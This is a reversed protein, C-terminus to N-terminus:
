EENKEGKKWRNESNKKLTEIKKAYCEPCLKKGDMAKKENCQFCKGNAGRPLKGKKIKQKALRLKDKVRCTACTVFQEDERPQGCTTCLGAERWRQKRADRLEKQHQSDYNKRNYDSRSKGCQLCSSMGNITRRDQKGCYICVHADKRMKIWERKNANDQERQEPTMTKKGSYRYKENCAACRSRGNRTYDDEKGCNVCRGENLMKIYHRKNRARTAKPTKLEKKAISVNSSM